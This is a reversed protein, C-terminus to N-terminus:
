VKGNCCLKVKRFPLFILVSDISHKQKNIWIKHVVFGLRVKINFEIDAASELSKNQRFEKRVRQRFYEQDTFKLEHSYRILKRYLQVVQRSTPANMICVCFSFLTFRILALCLITKSGCLQATARQCSKQSMRSSKKQCEFNMNAICKCCIARTAVHM